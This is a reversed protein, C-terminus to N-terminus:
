TQDWHVRYTQCLHGAASPAPALQHRLNISV